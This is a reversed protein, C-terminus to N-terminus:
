ANSTRRQVTADDFAGQFFRNQMSAITQEIFGLTAGADAIWEHAQNIWTLQRVHIREVIQGSAECCRDARGRARRTSARSSRGLAPWSRTRKRAFSVRCAG